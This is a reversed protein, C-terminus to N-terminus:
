WNELTRAAAARVSADQHREEVARIFEWSMRDHLSEAINMANVVNERWMREDYLLQRARPDNHVCALLFLVEPREPSFNDAGLDMNIQDLMGPIRATIASTPLAAVQGRILDYPYDLESITGDRFDLLIDLAVPHHLYSLAQLATVREQAPRNRDNAVGGLFRIGPEGFSAMKLLLNVTEDLRGFMGGDSSLLDTVTHNWYVRIDEQSTPTTDGSEMSYKIALQLYDRGLAQREAHIQALQAQLAANENELAKLRDGKPNSGPIDLAPAVSAPSGIFMACKVGFLGGLCASVAVSATWFLALLIKIRRTVDQERM